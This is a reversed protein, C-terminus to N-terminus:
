LMHTYTYIYLIVNYIWIDLHFKQCSSTYFNNLNNCNLPHRPQISRCFASAQKLWGEAQFVFLGCPSLNLAHSAFLSWDSELVKHDMNSQLEKVPFCLNQQIMQLQQRGLCVATKCQLFYTSWKTQQRKGIKNSHSTEIGISKVDLHM